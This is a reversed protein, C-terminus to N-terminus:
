SDNIIKNVKERLLKEDSLKAEHDPKFKRTKLEFATLYQLERNFITSIRYEEDIFLFDSCQESNSILRDFGDNKM